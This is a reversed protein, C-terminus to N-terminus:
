MKLRVLKYVHRICDQHRQQIQARHLWVGSNGCVGVKTWFALNPLREESQLTSNRTMCDQMDSLKRRIRNRPLGWGQSFQSHQIHPPGAAQPLLCRYHEPQLLRDSLHQMSYIDGVRQHLLALGLSSGVFGQPIANSEAYAAHEPKQTGPPLLPVLTCRPVDVTM